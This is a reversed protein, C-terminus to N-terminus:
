RAKRQEETEFLGQQQSSMKQSIKQQKLIIHGIM